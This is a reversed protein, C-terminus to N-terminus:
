FCNEIRQTRKTYLVETNNIKEDEIHSKELKPNARLNRTNKQEQM